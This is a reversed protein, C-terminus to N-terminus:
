RGFNSLGSRTRDGLTHLLSRPLLAGVALLIALAGFAALLMTRGERVRAVDAVHESSVLTGLSTAGDAGPATIALPPHISQFSPQRQRRKAPRKDNEAGTVTASSSSPQVPQTEVPETPPPVYPPPVPAPDPTPTQAGAVNAGLALVLASTLAM